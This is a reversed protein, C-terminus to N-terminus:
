AGSSATRVRWPREGLVNGEADIRVNKLGADRFMAAYVEARNGEKFPPAEVGGRWLDPDSRRDDAQEDTRALEVAAKM